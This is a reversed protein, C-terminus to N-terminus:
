DKLDVYKASVWAKEGKHIIQLWTGETNKGVVEVEDGESLWGVVKYGAGPGSRVRLGFTNVTGIDITPCPTELPCLEATSSPPVEVKGMGGCSCLLTVLIVLSVIQCLKRRM